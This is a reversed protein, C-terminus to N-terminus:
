EQRLLVCAAPASSSSFASCTVILFPFSQNFHVVCEIMGLYLGPLQRSRDVSNNKIVVLLM